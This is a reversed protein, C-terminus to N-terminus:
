LRSERVKEMVLADEGDQYYSKWRGVAAYGRSEYLQIAPLNSPRVSLRIAPTPIQAECADMLARGIGRGRYEPLVGITAIWAMREDRRVDGAVFGVVKGDCVAKLRVVSPLTLVSVIDLLPWADKPFCAQELSRVLTLDRWTAPLIQFVADSAPSDSLHFFQTRPLAGRV